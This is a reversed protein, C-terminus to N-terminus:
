YGRAACSAAAKADAAPGYQNLTNGAPQRTTAGEPTATEIDALDRFFRKIAQESTYLRRGARVHQLRVRRGTESLCGHLMHRSITSVAVKKGGPPRPYLRAADTPAILGEDTLDPRFHQEHATSM